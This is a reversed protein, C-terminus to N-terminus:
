TISEERSTHEDKLELFDSGKRPRSTVTRITKNEYATAQIVPDCLSSVM